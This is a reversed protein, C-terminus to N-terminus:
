MIQRERRVEKGIGLFSLPISLLSLSLSLFPFLLFVLIKTTNSGREEQPMASCSQVGEVTVGLWRYFITFCPNIIATSSM